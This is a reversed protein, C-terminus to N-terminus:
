LILTLYCVLTFVKSAVDGMESKNVGDVCAVAAEHTLFDVFGYDKRKATSMNRALVIRVIEGYSKFLERVHDEDWHPPLGNIFVSKVQAMIEPDPERIPEAFAVKATREAHGFIVDPKQLRKYALMADAHCSFEVFAFGRSLGEHQVDPVLTINEVGEIGYDKLKQKIQWGYISFYTLVGPFYVSAVFFFMRVSVAEKTWTNCINGL